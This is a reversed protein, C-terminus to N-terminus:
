FLHKQSFEAMEVLTILIYIWLKFMEKKSFSIKMNCDAWAKAM